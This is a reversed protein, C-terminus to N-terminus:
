MWIGAQESQEVAPSVDCGGDGDAFVATVSALALLAALAMSRLARM